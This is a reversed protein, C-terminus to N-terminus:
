STTVEAAARVAAAESSPVACREAPTTPPKLRFSVKMRKTDTTTTLMNVASM